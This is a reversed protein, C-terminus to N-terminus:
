RNRKRNAKARKSRSKRKSQTHSPPPTSSPPPSETDLRADDRALPGDPHGSEPQGPLTRRTGAPTLSVSFLPATTLFDAVARWDDVESLAISSVKVAWEERSTQTTSWTAALARAPAGKAQAIRLLAAAATAAWARAEGRTEPLRHLLVELAEEFAVWAGRDSAHKALSYAAEVETEEVELARRWADVAQSLENIRELFNGLRRWAEGNKPARETWQNLRTIAQSARHIPAGDWTQGAGRTVRYSPAEDPSKVSEVALFLRTDETLNYEDKAGCAPCSIVKALFVGDWEDEDFEFITEPDVFAQEVQETWPHGCKRCQVAVHLPAGSLSGLDPPPRVQLAERAPVPRARVGEM